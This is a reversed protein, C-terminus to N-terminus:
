RKGRSSHTEREPPDPSQCEIEILFMQRTGDEAVGNALIASGDRSWSPAADIRLAGRQYPGRSFKVSHAYANDSRRVIAYRNFKRDATAFGCALWNGDWSLAIDGGPRPLIEPTAIQGVIERGVIDYCVQREGEAGIVVTGADWEPHGGISDHTTLGTGDLKVSCPVNVDMSQKGIRGRTFFYVYEGSRSILTHNIYLEAKDVRRQGKRLLRRLRDYSVLLRRDGTAIDVRFIGDSTPALSSATADAAGPYGTVPRLRALRGYNIALFFEGTPSVGGNAVAVDDFRYERV